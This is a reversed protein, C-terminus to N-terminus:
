SWAVGRDAFIMFGADGAPETDLSLEPETGVDGENACRPGV